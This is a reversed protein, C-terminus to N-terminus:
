LKTLALECKTLEDRAVDGGRGGMPDPSGYSPDQQWTQVSKQLWGRAERLHQIKRERSSDNDALAEYGRAFISYSEAQGDTDYRNKPQIGEFIAVAQRAQAMALQIEHKLLLARAIGLVSFGFNARALYNAPDAKKLDAFISNANRYSELAQDLEGKKELLTASENYAEGLYERLTANTPSSNSLQELLQVGKRAAEVGADIDDTGRSATALGIYDAALHTRFWPNANSDVAIPERISAAKRFSEAAHTFDGTQNQISGTRWYFGALIDRYKPDADAAAIKQAVPLGKRLNNLADSSDGVDLLAFSLHFYDNLLDAQIQRDNPNTAASSERIAMAKKYSQIAGAFDGLNAAGSYGLVDGVRDYASALERQLAADGSSEQSLSDLYALAENVLLRRAPTAGPLDRISDHIQFMLSNALKRVDNFRREARIRQTRAIEAQQRAVHAEYLAAALGGLIAIVVVTSALVGAKHRGIFKSARYSRTDKRALVPINELHRRIDTAFQEPTAYRRNPENRLAMLVINDLDGKLQKQLKHPSSGRASAIQEISIPSENNKRGPERSVSVSPNEPECERIASAFEQSARVTAPYRSRGTLLNYLVVGLSYVDSATTVPGGNIQEPSAYEPTLARFATHTDDRQSELDSGLVKAIGFDLLKPTGDSTVLINGPKIDRHIILRQHAYQVAACVQLFVALRDAVSLNRGDCYSAIPQGNILEMVLYPSGEATTGGDLLRAINPHELSALIQREDKFRTLVSGSDYGGRIVKLAVEKRYQDDARFARYVEGMGGAGIQEIIQYAGIRRGIWPNGEEPFLAATAAALATQNLFGSGVEPERQLLVEVDHRLLHDAACRQDLYTAREQPALELATALLDKVEEWREPTM